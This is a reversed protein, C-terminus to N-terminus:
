IAAHVQALSAAAIPITEFTKFVQEISQGLEQEIIIKVTPWAAPAVNDQLRSLEAIYNPPLLDSRTSLLQGLKIFTPGLEELALVVHRALTMEDHTEPAPKRRLFRTSLNLRTGLDLQAVIAGFGHRTLIEAIQRYRRLHRPRLAM